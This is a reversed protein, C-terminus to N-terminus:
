VIDKILFYNIEKLILNLYFFNFFFIRFICKEILNILLYIIKKDDYLTFINLLNIIKFAKSVM